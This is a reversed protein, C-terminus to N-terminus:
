SKKWRKTLYQDRSLDKKSARLQKVTKTGSVGKNWAGFLSTLKKEEKNPIESGLKLYIKLGDTITESLGRKKELARKKLAFLIDTPITITTRTKLGKNM